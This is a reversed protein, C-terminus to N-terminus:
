LLYSAGEWPIWELSPREVGHNRAEQLAEKLTRGTGVVKTRSHDLAVFNGAFKRYLPTMDVMKHKQPKM